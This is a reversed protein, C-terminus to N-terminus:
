FTFLVGAALFIGRERYGNWIEIRQNALNTARIYASVNRSFQYEVRVRIDAYAPLIVTPAVIRESQVICSLTSRLAPFANSESPLLSSPLWSRTYHASVAVPALYPVFATMNTTGSQYDFHATIDDESTLQWDIETFFRLISARQLGRDLGLASPTTPIEGRTNVPSWLLMASSEASAGVSVVLSRVPQIVADISVDYDSRSFLSQGVATGLQSAVYPHTLLLAQVSQPRVGTFGRVDIRLPVTFAIPRYQAHISVNPRISNEADRVFQAGAEIELRLADTHTEFLLLPALIFRDTLGLGNSQLHVRLIGGVMSNQTATNTARSKTSANTEANGLSLASRLHGDLITNSLTQVSRQMGETNRTELLCHNITADIDYMWGQFAGKTQVGGEVSLVSRTPIVGQVSFSDAAFLNYTRRQLRLHSKTLSGGFFLFKEPALYSSELALHQTTFDASPLHGNSFTAVATAYLDFNGTVARYGAEIDPTIFLGFEGRLFGTTQQKPLIPARFPPHLLLSFRQKELPNFLVLEALTLKRLPNPPQKVGGPIDLSEVGTIVFEPLELPQEAAKSEPSKPKQPQNGSQAHLITPLIFLCLMVVACFLRAGALTATSHSYRSFIALPVGHFTFRLAFTCLM